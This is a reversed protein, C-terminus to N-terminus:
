AVVFTGTMTTPHIDCRFFYQGPQDIPDVDYTISGPGQVAGEGATVGPTFLGTAGTADTYIAVNHLQGPDQNDFAITFPQGAPAALCEPDFGSAVAGSPAAIALETGDPECPPATDTTQPTPQPPTPSPQPVALLPEEGGRVALQVETDSPDYWALHLVGEAGLGLRPTSGPPETRSGTVQIASFEGEANNAYSVGAAEEWAVHHVGEPDVVISPGAVEEGQPSLGTSGVVSTEWAGGDISHAHRVQGTESYYALHPNGDADISMSVGLGGDPDAEESQWLAGARRALLTRGESGYAVLPIDGALGIATRAPEGPSAEAATEVAWGGETALAARVLQTEVQPQEGGAQEYFAVFPVRNAGVGISPGSAGTGEVITDPESFTGEANNAYWLSGAETWVIHHVGDADVAIATADTSRDVALGEAVVSRTWVGGVFHAHKVAPLEPSTPEPQATEGETEEEFALYAMHPNGEADTTLSLGAGVDGQFDAVHTVFTTEDIEGPEATIEGRACSTVILSLFPLLLLRPWVAPLTRGRAARGAYDPV